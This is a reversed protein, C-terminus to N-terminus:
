SNAAFFLEPFTIIDKISGDLHYALVNLNYIDDHSPRNENRSNIQSNAVQKYNRPHFVPYYAPPIKNQLQKKYTKMHSGQDNTKIDNILSPATPVFEKDTHKANGHPAPIYTKHNGMYHVLVISPHSDLWWAHRKFSYKLDLATYSKYICPNDDPLHHTGNHIKWPYQYAKWNDTFLYFM